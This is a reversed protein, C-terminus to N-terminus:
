FPRSFCRHKSGPKVQIYYPKNAPFKSMVFVRRNLYISLKVELFPFNESLFMQYKEYKQEFCLNHTSTLVAEATRVLVWLRHKQASILFIM